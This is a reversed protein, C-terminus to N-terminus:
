FDAAPQYWEGEFPGAADLRAAADIGEVRGCLYDSGAAPNEIGYTIRLTREERVYTDAKTSATDFARVPGLATQQGLTDVIVYCLIVRYPDRPYAFGPM